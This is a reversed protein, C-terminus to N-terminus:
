RARLPSRRAAPRRSRGRAGVDELRRVARRAALGLAVWLVAKVARRTLRPLALWREHPFGVAGLASWWGGSIAGAIRRRM